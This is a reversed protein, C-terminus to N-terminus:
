KRLFRHISDESRYDNHSIEKTRKKKREVKRM